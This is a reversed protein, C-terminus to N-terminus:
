GVSALWVGTVAMYAVGHSLPILMSLSLSRAIDEVNTGVSYVSVEYLVLRLVVICTTGCLCGASGLSPAAADGLAM